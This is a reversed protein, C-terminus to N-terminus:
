FDIKLGKFEKVFLSIFRSKYPINIPENKSLKLHSEKMFDHYCLGVYLAIKCLIFCNRFKFIIFRSFNFLFLALGGKLFIQWQVM